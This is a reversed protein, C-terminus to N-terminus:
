CTSCGSTTTRSRSAIAKRPKRSYRSCCVSRPRCTNRSRRQSSTSSAPEGRCRAQRPEYFPTLTVVTEARTTDLMQELERESYTPNVGVVVAGIKWSASSRSWSSRAIRSFCPSAIERAFVSTGSRQPSVGHEGPRAPRVLRNQGQVAPATADGHERALADPLRRADQGPYPALSRVSTPDYHTLWPKM